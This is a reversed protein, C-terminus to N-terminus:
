KSNLGSIEVNSSDEVLLMDPRFPTALGWWVRGNGDLTGKGRVTLAKMDYIHILATNLAGSNRADFVIDGDIQTVCCLVDCCVDSCLLSM